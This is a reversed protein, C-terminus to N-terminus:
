WTAQCNAQILAIHFFQKHLHLDPMTHRQSDHKPHRLIRGMKDLTFFRRTFMELEEIREAGEEEGDEEM